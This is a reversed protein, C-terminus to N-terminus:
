NRPHAFCRCADRRLARTELAPRPPSARPVDIRVRMVRYVRHTGEIDMSRLENELDFMTGAAEGDAAGRAIGDVAKAALVGQVAPVNADAALKEKLAGRAARARTARPM